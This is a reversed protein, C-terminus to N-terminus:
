AVRRPVDALAVMRAARGGASVGRHAHGRRTPDSMVFSVFRIAKEFPSSPSASGRTTLLGKTSGMHELPRVDRWFRHQHRQRTGKKHTVIHGIPGACQPFPRKVVQEAGPPEMTRGMVMAWLGSASSAKM